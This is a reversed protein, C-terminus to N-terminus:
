KDDGLSGVSMKGRVIEIWKLLLKKLTFKSIKKGKYEHFYEIGFFYKYM